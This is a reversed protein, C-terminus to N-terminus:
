TKRKYTGELDVEEVSPLVHLILAPFYRLFAIVKKDVFGLNSIKILAEVARM